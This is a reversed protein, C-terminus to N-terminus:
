GRRILRAYERREEEDQIPVGAEICLQTVLLPFYWGRSEHKFLCRRIKMKIIEALDIEIGCLIAYILTCRRYSVYDKKLTPM